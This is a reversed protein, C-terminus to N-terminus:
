AAREKTIRSSLRDLDQYIWEARYGLQELEERLRSAKVARIRIQQIHPRMAPIRNLPTKETGHVTFCGQQALLRSNSYPPEVAIPGAPMSAQSASYNPRLGAPLYTHVVWDFGEPTYDRKPVFLSDRGHVHANLKYPNMVWVVPSKKDNSKDNSKDNTFDLAFFLAALPSKAWDLLRTPLGHHQMLAYIEWSDSYEKSAYAPLSVRFEEVLSGEDSIDRWIIGPSLHLERRSVGRFWLSGYPLNMTDSIDVVRQVYEAVSDVPTGSSPM